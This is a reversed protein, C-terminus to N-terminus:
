EDDEDQTQGENERQAQRAKREADRRLAAGIDLAADYDEEDGVEFKPKKM